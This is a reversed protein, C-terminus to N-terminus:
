QKATLCTLKWIDGKFVELIEAFRPRNPMLGSFTHCINIKWYGDFNVQMLANVYM